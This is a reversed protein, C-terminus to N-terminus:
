HLCSSYQTLSQNLNHGFLIIRYGNFWRRTKLALMCIGRYSLPASIFSTEISMLNHRRRLLIYFLNHSKSKYEMTKIHSRRALNYPVLIFLPLNPTLALSDCTKVGKITFMQGCDKTYSQKSRIFFVLIELGVM